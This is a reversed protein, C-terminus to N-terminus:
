ISVNQPQNFWYNDNVEPSYNLYSKRHEPTLHPETEMMYNNSYSTEMSSVHKTFHENLHVSLFIMDDQIFRSGNVIMENTNILKVGAWRTKVNDFRLTLDKKSVSAYDSGLQFKVDCKFEASHHECDLMKLYVSITENPKGAEYQGNAFLIVVWKSKGISTPFNLEFPCSKVFQGVSTLQVIKSVQEIQFVVLAQLNTEDVSVVNFELINKDM